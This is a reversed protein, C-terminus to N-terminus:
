ILTATLIFDPGTKFIHDSGSGTKKMIQDTLGRIWPPPATRGGRGTTKQGKSLFEEPLGYRFIRSKEWSKTTSTLFKTKGGRNM